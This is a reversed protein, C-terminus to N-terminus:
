WVVVKLFTEDVKVVYMGASWTSTDVLVSANSSSIRDQFVLEGTLNYVSVIRDKPTISNVELNFSDQSPNPVARLVLTELVPTEIGVMVGNETGFTPAIAQFNGTGNPFRGYAVDTTQDIYSVEDVITGSVDVLIVSEASASLKFNTHLGVQEEDNDAWITLYGSTEIVTGAPFEWKMLEEPDDSLFYGGLDISSDS